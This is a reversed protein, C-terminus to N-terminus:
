IVQEGGPYCFSSRPAYFGFTIELPKKPRLAYVPHTPLLFELDVIQWPTVIESVYPYVGSSFTGKAKKTIYRLQGRAVSAITNGVRATTRIIPIGNSKTTAILTDGQLELTTLGPTAPVGRELVYKIVTASSNFYHTWWRGPNVGGPADLNQLDAGLYTLSYAGFGSTQEDTDVVYQNMFVAGRYNPTFRNPVLAKVAAPDEPIWGFYLMRSNIVMQPAALKNPEEAQASSNTNSGTILDGLLPTSGVSAAGTILGATKLIQRRSFNYSLKLRQLQNRMKLYLVIRM